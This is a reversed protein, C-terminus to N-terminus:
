ESMPTVKFYLCAAANVVGTASSNRTLWITSDSGHALIPLLRYSGTSETRNSFAVGDGQALVYYTSLTSAALYNFVILEPYEDAKVVSNTYTYSQTTDTTTDTWKGVYELSKAGSLAVGLVNWRASTTSTRTFTVSQSTDIWQYVGYYVTNGDADDMTIIDGIQTLGSTIPAEGVLSVIFFLSNATLDSMAAIKLATATYSTLSTTTSTGGKTLITYMDIDGYKVGASGGSANAIIPQFLM